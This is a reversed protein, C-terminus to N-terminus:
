DNIIGSIKVLFKLISGGYVETRPIEYLLNDDLQKPRIAFGTKFGSRKVANISDNNYVGGTYAFHDVPKGSFEELLRKNYSIEEIQENLPIQDLYPHSHTHGGLSFLSSIGIQNFQEKSLGEYRASIEAPLPYNRSFDSSFVRADSSARALNILKQWAVRCEPETKLPFRDSDILLESYVSEFCLANFYVFWLLSNQELHVTNAFFTAPIDNEILFSAILQFTNAYCDDFTLAALRDKPKDKSTLHDVYEDLPVVRYFRRLWLMQRKFDKVRLILGANWADSPTDDPFVLHYLLIM